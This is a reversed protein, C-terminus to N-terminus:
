PAAYVRVGRRSACGISPRAASRRLEVVSSSSARTTRSAWARTTTCRRTRSAVAHRHPRQQRLLGRRRGRPGRQGRHHHRVLELTFLNGDLYIAGGSGGGPTGASARTPAAASRRTTRPLRQQHGGVLRRHQSLAGGNSCRGGTFTSGTIHVPQDDSSTSCGSRRAASTPAPRTAATASSRRTRGGHAPRRARLGGRGRRGGRAVRDLQRPHLHPEAAGAQADGPGPLAVHDLWGSTAPTRTSSGASAAAASPSWGAATSSWRARPTTTCRPRAQGDRDHGPRPRLRLHHHRGEGGGQPVGRRHLEGAHRPRRRAPDGRPARRSTPTARRVVARAHAARGGPRRAHRRSRAPCAREVGLRRLRAARRGRDLRGRDAAEAERALESDSASRGSSWVGTSDLDITSVSRPAVPKSVYTPLPCPCRTGATRTASPRSTASCRRRRRPRDGRDLGQAAEPPRSPRSGPAAAARRARAQGDAPLRGALRGPRRGPGRVLGLRRHKFYALAAGRRRQRGPDPHGRAAPAQRRPGRGPPPRAAPGPHARRSRTSHRRVAARAPTRVAGSATVRRRRRATPGAPGQPPQDARPPRPGADDSFREVTRTRASEEHHELAKPILYVAWAVALAVFILASPDM